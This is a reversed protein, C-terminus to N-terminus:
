TVCRGEGSGCGHGCDVIHRGASLEHLPRVVHAGAKAAEVAADVVSQIAALVSSPYLVNAVALAAFFRLLLRARDRAGTALSADFDRQAAAVLRAAFEHDEANLLGASPAFYQLM